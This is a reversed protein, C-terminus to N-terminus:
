SSITRRPISGLRIFHCPLPSLSGISDLLVSSPRAAFRLTSNLIKHYNKYLPQTLIHIKICSKNLHPNYPQKKLIKTNPKTPFDPVCQKDPYEPPIIPTKKNSSTKTTRSKRSAESDLNKLRVVSRTCSSHTGVKSQRIQLHLVNYVYKLIKSNRIRCTTKENDSLIKAKSPM